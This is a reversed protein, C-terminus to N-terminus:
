DKIQIKMPNGLGLQQLKKEFYRFFFWLFDNIIYSVNNLCLIMKLLCNYKGVKWKSLFPNEVLM